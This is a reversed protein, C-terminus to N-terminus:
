NTKSSTSTTATTGTAFSEEKYALLPTFEHRRWATFTSSGLCAPVLYLLAPQAAKFFYMCGLTAALGIVYWIMCSWFYPKQKWDIATASATSSRFPTATSAIQEDTLPPARLQFYDFRLLLAIFIGPIVIDGLGLMSPSEGAAMQPFLLKIPAEFSRAVTVMVETGFVWFVDYVFLGGLLIRGNHFTGLSLLEIGQISFAIGFMNSTVWHNTLTYLVGVVASLVLALVEVHTFSIKDEDSEQQLNGQKQTFPIHVRYTKADLADLVRRPLIGTLLVSIQNGLALIGFFFFYIRLLMNVYDKNLFKFVLYLGFLVCSGIVPFMAVDKTQMVDSPKGKRNQQNQVSNHSGIYIILFTISLVQAFVPIPVFNPLLLLLAIGIYCLVREKELPSHRSM